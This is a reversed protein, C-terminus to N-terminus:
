ERPASSTRTTMAWPGHRSRGRTRHRLHFVAAAARDLLAASLRRFRHTHHRPFRRALCPALERGHRPQFEACPLRGSRAARRALIKRLMRVVPRHYLRIVGHMMGLLYRALRPDMRKRLMLNYIDQLRITPSGAFSTSRISCSRSISSVCKGPGNSNRSSRACRTRPLAIAAAPMLFCWISEQCEKLHNCPKTRPPTRLGSRQRSKDSEPWQGTGPSRTSRVPAAMIPAVRITARFTNVTASATAAMLVSVMRSSNPMIITTAFRRSEPNKASTASHTTPCACRGSTSSAMTTM